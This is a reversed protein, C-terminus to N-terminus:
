HRKIFLSFYACEKMIKDDITEFLYELFNAKSKGITEKKTAYNIIRLLLNFNNDSVVCSEVHTIKRGKFEIEVKSNGCNLIILHILEVPLIDFINKEKEDESQSSCFILRAIKLIKLSQEVLLKVYYIVNYRDSYKYGYFNEAKYNKKPILLVSSPIGRLFDVFNRWVGSVEMECSQYNMAIVFGFFESDESCNILYNNGSEGENGIHWWDNGKTEELRPIYEEDEELFNIIGTFSIITFPTTKKKPAEETDEEDEEDNRFKRKLTSIQQYFHLLPPPLRQNEERWEILSSPDEESTEEEREIVEFAENSKFYSILDDLSLHSTNSYCVVQAGNEEKNNSNIEDEEGIKSIKSSIESLTEDREKRKM